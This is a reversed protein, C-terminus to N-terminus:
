AAPGVRGAARRNEYAKLHTFAISLMTDDLQHKRAHNLMFGVIHDSEVANGSELDRLMSATLASPTKLRLNCFEVAAPRLPFGEAASIEMNTKLMRNVAEAGGPAGIIEAINARFLCTLAAAASLFVVKEWLDQEIVTSLETEVKSLELARAFETARATAAPTRAGIVIRHLPGLHVITGDKKMTAMIACLGGLVHDRGFRNDLTDLHSMGNLMPVVACNGQMAPAIADMASDLDYSKCTLLVVDYDARLDAAEVTKVPLRFNGMASEVVLGDRQLQANRGPRVLFTVDVGALAMRGGFYGGIAGAGLVLVKM